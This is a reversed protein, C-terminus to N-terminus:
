PGGQEVQSKFNEATYMLPLHSQLKYRYGDM